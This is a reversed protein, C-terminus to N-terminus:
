NKRDAQEQELSKKIAENFNRQLDDPSLVSDALQRRSYEGGVWRLNRIERPGAWAKGDIKRKRGAEVVEGSPSLSLETVTRWDALPATIGPDTATLEDLNVVVEQWDSSGRVNKAVAYDVAFKGPVFAGWANTNLKVVLTNDTASRIEFRLTAGDPGRWKPDKLKRTGATWLPPHSWNLRYWDHWPRAGDDILRAVDDTAKVAAAQLQAPAVIAVRSSITFVDTPLQGANLVANRYRAPLEYTVNAFAFLPQQVSMIPCAAKWQSGAPETKASRWYRSLEHSDISYYVDVQKIPLSDDAAITVSPVGDPSKLNLELQPSRPMAFTRKLHQDFWLQQTIQHEDTHRHNLHPSISFRTRDDPLNRWNWAMNGIPANFDNTPSLWLIPCTIGPLYANDSICASEMASPNTKICGPLEAQSMSINGAGGCSPVAARVRRDIGALDTTLKGGMSHGYAGIRDPDVEPQKELFTIARRAAMLVLFWNSNRPSEVADLTYDDPTLPGAFHNTKNRQPPHTADLNGWDTQPGAYSRQSRGFNLKNGGWNISLSAYGRAADAVVGDLGASQGGGHMSLLAPLKTGGKPFAYFGAVRAPAGKFSGVQYRVVRRIIGDQEWEMLTEVELPTTRDLEDFESWLETLTQPVEASRGVASLSFLMLFAAAYAFLHTHLPLM